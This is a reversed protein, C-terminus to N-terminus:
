SYVFTFSQMNDMTKWALKKNKNKINNVFTSNYIKHQSIVMTTDTQAFMSSIKIRHEFSTKHPHIKLYWQMLNWSLEQLVSPTKAVITNALTCNQCGYKIPNAGFTLRNYIYM